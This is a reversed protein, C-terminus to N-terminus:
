GRQKATVRWLLPARVVPNAVAMSMLTLTSAEAATNVQLIWLCDATDGHRCIDMEPALPMPELLGSPM